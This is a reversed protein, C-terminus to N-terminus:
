WDHPEFLSGSEEEYKILISWATVKGRFDNLLWATLSENDEYCSM